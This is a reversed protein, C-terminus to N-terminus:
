GGDVKPVIYLVDGDQLVREEAQASSLAAGNAVIVFLDFVVEPIETFHSEALDRLMLGPRHHYAKDNLRIM